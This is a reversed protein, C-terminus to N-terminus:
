AVAYWILVSYVITSIGHLITGAVAAWKCPFMYRRKLLFVVGYAACMVNLPPLSGPFPFFINHVIGACHTSRVSNNGCGCHDPAERKWFHAGELGDSLLSM